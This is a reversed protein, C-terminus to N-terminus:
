ACLDVFLSAGLMVFWGIFYSNDDGVLRARRYIYVPVLLAGWFWSCSSTDFGQKKLRSENISCFISNLACYLIASAGWSSAGIGTVLTILSGMLPVCAILWAILRNTSADEASVRPVASAEAAAAEPAPVPAPVSEAAPALTSAAPMPPPTEAGVPTEAAPAGGDAPPTVANGCSPCFRADEPLANGCHTCFM